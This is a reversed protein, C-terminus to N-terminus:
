NRFLNRFAVRHGILYLAIGAVLTPTDLFTTVTATAGTTHFIMVLLAGMAILVLASAIRCSM